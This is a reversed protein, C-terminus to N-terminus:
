TAATVRSPSVRPGASGTLSSLTGFAFSAATVIRTSPLSSINQDVRAPPSPPASRHTDVRCVTWSGQDGGTFRPAGSLEADSSTVGLRENSPRVSMKPELRGPPDPPLSRQIDVRVGLPFTVGHSGRM